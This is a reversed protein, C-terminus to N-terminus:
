THEESRRETFLKNFSTIPRAQALKGPGDTIYVETPRETASYAFAIRTSQSQSAAAPIEYTGAWGERKVITAKPNAQSALQVETGIRSACLVSGDPLPTYRVVEGPYDAFWRQAERKNSTSDSTSGLADAADIWYLRPQPDEYKRELSGLNVQFFLHRNDPAWELNLEVAENHTLRVPTAEAASGTLRVLYLEIDEVKEQRESVSSTVFALRTSDHSISIQGVRLPARAIAVAGPTAGSDKEADSLEKSNSGLAAHRALAEELPVRFIVDGREDGRYRIVDKWEKKHDDNQQKTWPQRTAFYIAKSDQSWAFGHVEDAGSTIAIAEGGSPSILFLQAVDKDKDAAKDDGADADKAVAVKRESLFAIWQGDPSWQPTSDHGSQTLQTLSGNATRYLWLEKRFTQQEWDARETEIVVSNGDPSVKVSPFSVSNFFEDLTLKPKATQAHALISHTFVSASIVSLLSLVFISRRMSQDVGLYTNKGYLRPRGCRRERRSVPSAGARLTRPRM